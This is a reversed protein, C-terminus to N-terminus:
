TRLFPCAASPAAARIWRGGQKAALQRCCKSTCCATCHLAACLWPTEASATPAATNGRRSGHDSDTSQRNTTALPFIAIAPEPTPPPTTVLPRLREGAGVDVLVLCATLVARELILKSGALWVNCGRVHVTKCHPPRFPPRFGNRESGSIWLGHKTTSITSRPIAPTATFFIRFGFGVRARAANPV